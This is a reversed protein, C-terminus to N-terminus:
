PVIEDQIDFTGLIKWEKDPASYSSSEAVQVHWRPLNASGYVQWDHFSLMGESCYVSGSTDGTIIEGKNMTVLKGNTVQIVRTDGRSKGFSDVFLFRLYGTGSSEVTFVVQPLYEPMQLGPVPLIAEMQATRDTDARKRWNATAEKVTLLEGSMPLEPKALSLPVMSNDEAAAARFLWVLLVLLLTLGSGTCIKELMTFPQRVKPETASPVSAVTRAIFDDLDDLRGTAPANVKVDEVRSAEGREPRAGASETAAPNYNEIENEPVPVRAHPAPTNAAPPGAGAQPPPATEFQTREKRQVPLPAQPAHTRVPEELSIEDKAGHAIPASPNAGSPAQSSHPKRPTAM